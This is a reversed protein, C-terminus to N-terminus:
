NYDPKKYITDPRAVIDPKYVKETWDSPKIDVISVSVSKESSGIVNMVVKTLEDALRQKDRESRGAFLKVIVHPM